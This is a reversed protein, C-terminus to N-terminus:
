PLPIIESVFESWGGKRKTIIVACLSFVVGSAVFVVLMDSSGMIMGIGTVITLLGAIVTVLALIGTLVSNLFSKM